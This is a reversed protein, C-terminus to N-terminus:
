SSFCVPGLEFGFKQNTQGFDTAAVDVLPLFGTQFSTIDLVTRSQGKRLQCGDFPVQITAAAATQNFALERSDGGLFRLAQSHSGSPGDLW